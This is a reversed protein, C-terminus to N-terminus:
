LAHLNNIGIVPGSSEFEIMMELTLDSRGEEETWLDAEVHWTPVARARLECARLFAYDAPPAVVRRGYEAVAAQLDDSDMLSYDCREMVSEYDGDALLVLLDIVISRVQREFAVTRQDSEMCPINGAVGAAWLG